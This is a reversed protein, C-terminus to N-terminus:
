IGRRRNQAALAALCEDKRFTSAAKGFWFRCAKKLENANIGPLYPLGKETRTLVHKLVRARGSM